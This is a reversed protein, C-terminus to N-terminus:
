NRTRGDDFDPGRELYMAANALDFTVVFNKLLGLGVNGADFRDAFAGSTALMVDTDAHYLSIDGLELSDLTSRYSSTSGGIGYSHRSTTSFPVIGPHQELFPHYLLLEGANGTDIIFPAETRADIKLMAEPFSRDVQVTIKEGVPPLTGPVGFTMTKASFDLRVTASAFFPYGLIGDIRFVGATSAGLDLTSAVIGSLRGKGIDIEDLKVIQLGGTRTAGSAELAGIPALGLDHAVHKDVVIDQAGTDVLFTYHHGAISVPAYMHGDHTELGITDPAAIAITRPVLPAFTAAAITGGLTITVTTQVTDYPHDGDSVVNKFAFHHGEVVRWDSLDITTRGDDDDYALRVPLFSKADLYLTETEGDPAAVDLAYTNVGDITVHGRYISHEPHKAFDGSDIYDQTRERRALVGTLEHADGNADQQYVRDGLRLITDTRPGLNEDTREHDGQSWSHFFGTLGGGTLTGTSEFTVIDASGADNSAREYNALLDTVSPASSALVPMRVAAVSLCAVIVVCLKALSAAGYRTWFALSMDKRKPLRRFAAM